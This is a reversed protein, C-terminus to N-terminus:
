KDERMENIVKIIKNIKDIANITDIHVVEIKEDLNDIGILSTPIIKEIKKGDEIVEVEENLWDYDIFWQVYDEDEEDFLQSYKYVHYTKNESLIKFRFEEGNTIKQMADIVKM